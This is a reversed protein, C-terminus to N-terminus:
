IYIERSKNGGKSIVWIYSPVFPSPLIITYIYNIRRYSQNPDYWFKLCYVTLLIQTM